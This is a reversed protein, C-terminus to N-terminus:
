RHVRTEALAEADLIVHLPGSLVEDYRTACCVAACADQRSGPSNRVECSFDECGEHSMDEPSLESFTRRLMPFM